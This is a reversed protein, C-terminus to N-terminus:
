KCHAEIVKIEDETLNLVKYAQVDNMGTLDPVLSNKVAPTFGATKQYTDLFFRVAKLDWIKSILSAQSEDCPLWLNLMGVADTTFFRSYPSCSFPAVFKAVGAGEVEKSTYRVKSGSFRIPNGSSEKCDDSKIHGNSAVFKLSKFSTIKDYISKAVLDDKSRYPGESFDHNVGYTSTSNSYERKVGSWRAISVGVDFSEDSSVVAQLDIENIILNRQRRSQQTDFKAWSDPTILSIFGNPKLLDISLKIFKPWLKVNKAANSSDQYPPNGIVVDFEMHMFSNLDLTLNAGNLRNYLNARNIFWPQTEAGYVRPMIQERTHYKECRKVIEALYQGGGMAPDIFTTTPNIFYEEPISAVLARAAKTQELLRLRTHNEM